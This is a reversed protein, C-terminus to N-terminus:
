GTASFAKVHDSVAKASKADHRTTAKKSAKAKKTAKAPKTAPKCLKVVCAVPVLDDAPVDPGPGLALWKVQCTGFRGDTGLRGLRGFGLISTTFELTFSSLGIQTPTGQLLNNILLIGPPLQGKLVTTGCSSRFLCTLTNWQYGYEGAGFTLTFLQLGPM